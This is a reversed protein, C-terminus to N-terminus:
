NVKFLKSLYEVQSPMSCASVSHIAADVVHPNLRNKRAKEKDPVGKDNFPIKEIDRALIPCGPQFIYWNNNEQMRLMMAVQDGKIEETWEDRIIKRKGNKTVNQQELAECYGSNTGGYEARIVAGPAMDLIGMFNRSAYEKLCIVKGDTTRASLVGWHGAAPNFDVGLIGGGFAWFSSDLEKPIEKVIQPRFVRDDASRWKCFYMVDIKDMPIIESAIIDNVYQWDQIGAHLVDQIPTLMKFRTTPSHHYVTDLLSNAEAIGTFYRRSGKSGAQPLAAALVDLDLMQCEDFFLDTGRMSQVGGLTPPLFKISSGNKFTKETIQWPEGKLDKLVSSHNVITNIYLNAQAYQRANDGPIWSIWTNDKNAMKRLFAEISTQTKASYRSGVWCSQAAKGWLINYNWAIQYDAYEVFHNGGAVCKEIGDWMDLADNMHHIEARIRDIQKPSLPQSEPLPKYDKPLPPIYYASSPQTVASM